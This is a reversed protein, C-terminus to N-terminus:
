WIPYSPELEKSNAFPVGDMRERELMAKCPWRQHAMKLVWTRVGYTKMGGM